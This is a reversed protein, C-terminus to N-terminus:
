QMYDLWCGIETLLSKNTRHGNRFIGKKDSQAENLNADNDCRILCINRHCATFRKLSQIFSDTEM